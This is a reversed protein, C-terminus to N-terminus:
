APAQEEPLHKAILESLGIVEVDMGYHDIGDELMNRCNACATVLTNVGLEELQSKKRKFAQLRLETARENASVGGGGGCCWNMVGHDHMEVFGPAVMDLLRRPPEVM